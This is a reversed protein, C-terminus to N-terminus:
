PAVGGLLQAKKVPGFWRSDQSVLRNDGMVFYDDPGLVVPVEGMRRSYTYGGPALYPEALLRGGVYVNGERLQLTDGPLGILRKVEMIGDRGDKIVVLDGRGYAGLHRSWRNLVRREGPQLTPIM